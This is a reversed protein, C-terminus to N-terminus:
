PSAKESVHLEFLWKAFQGDRNFLTLELPAKTDLWSPDIADFVVSLETVSAAAQASTSVRRAAALSADKTLRTGNVEIDADPDLGRGRVTLKSNDAAVEIEDIVPGVSRSMKGGLYGAAGIGSLLLLGEPIGPLTSISTPDSRLVSFVFTGIGLLTFAMFVLREPMVVGGTSILDTISPQVGGAGKPGKQSTIGNSAVTTGASIALIGPLNGPIEALELVGQCLVRSVTLFVYAFLAAGSWALLQFNALSYTDTNRDLLFVGFRQKSNKVLGRPDIDYSGPALLAIALLLALLGGSWWVATRKVEKVDKPMFRAPITVETTADGARLGLKRNGEWYAPFPGKVELQRPSTFTAQQGDACPKSCLKVERDDVLLVFDEVRGGMGEGILLLQPAKLPIFAPEARTLKLDLPRVDRTIRIFSGAVNTPAIPASWAGNQYVRLRVFTPGFPIRKAAKGIGEKPVIFAVGLGDPEAPPGIEVDGLLISIHRTDKPLGKATIVVRSGRVVEAPSVGTVTPLAPATAAAPTVNADAARARPAPLTGVLLAAV